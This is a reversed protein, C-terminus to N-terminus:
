QGHNLLQRSQRALETVAGVQAPSTFAVRAALSPETVAADDAGLPAALREPDLLQGPQAALYLVPTDRQTHLRAV